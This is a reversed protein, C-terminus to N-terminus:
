RMDINSSVSHLGYSPNRERIMHHLILLCHSDQWGQEDDDDYSMVFGYLFFGNKVVLVLGEIERRMTLASCKAKMVM